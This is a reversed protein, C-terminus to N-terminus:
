FTIEQPTSIMTSTDLLLMVSKVGTLSILLDNGIVRYCSSGICVNKQTILEEVSEGTCYVAMKGEQEWCDVVKM